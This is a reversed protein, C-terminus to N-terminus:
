QDIPVDLENRPNQAPTDLTAGIPAVYGGEPEEITGVRNVDVHATDMAVAGWSVDTDPIEADPLAYEASFRIAQVYVVGREVFYPQVSELKLPRGQYLGAIFLNNLAAKVLVGLKYAGKPGKVVAAIDRVDTVIVFVVFTVEAVTERAGGIRRVVGDTDHFREREVALLIAPTKGLVASHVGALTNVEGAWRDLLRLVGGPNSPTMLLPQLAAMIATEITDVDTM